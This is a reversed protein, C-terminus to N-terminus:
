HGVQVTLGYKVLIDAFVKMKESDPPRLEPLAYTLGLRRYKQTGIRHYPLIHVSRVGSLTAIFRGTENINDADDNIGPIVPIRIVINDHHSALELLNDLIVGNSVGTYQRHRRDDMLKLDYLFLDVLGALQLLKDRPAFGCTDVATHIEKERCGALLATLFDTQMLPEGGSFTVGGASQDYFIVDREIARIVEVASMKRGAIERAGAHCVAACSGCGTCKGRGPEPVTNEGAGALPLLAGSPCVGACDGCGICREPYFMIQPEPLQSEPNHCWHCSLPCGKLFVTTRIGPGDHVSYKMIDFVTGGAM